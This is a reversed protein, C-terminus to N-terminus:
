EPRGSGLRALFKSKPFNAELVRRTDNMLDTMGLERYSLAQLGLAEEVAPARQYNEIVNRTRNVVAVYAGRSYYYRAAHIDGMAIANTLFALRKRSDVAYKSNPFRQVIEKFADYADSLAKPDRKSVDGAGFFRELTTREENFSALGKLYIAYDAHPHTPHTRLFRNAAALAAAMEDSKYYAFAVEIMAQEAYPGYPYRAELKEFYKVAETYEKKALATKGEDYLRQASWDKTPDVEVTSCGALVLLVLTVLPLTIRM